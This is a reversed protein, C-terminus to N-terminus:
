CIGGIKELWGQRFNSRTIHYELIHKRNLPPSREHVRFFANKGAYLRGAIQSQAIINPRQAVEFQQFVLIVAEIGNDIKVGDGDPLIRRLKALGAQARQGNEKGAAEVRFLVDNEELGM